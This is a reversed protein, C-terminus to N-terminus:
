ILSLNDATLNGSLRTAETGNANRLAGLVSGEGGVLLNRGNENSRAGRKNAM